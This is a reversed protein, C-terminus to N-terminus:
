NASGKPTFHALSGFSVRWSEKRGGKIGYENPTLSYWNFGIFNLRRFGMRSGYQNLTGFLTHVDWSPKARM